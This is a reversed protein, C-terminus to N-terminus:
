NVLTWDSSSSRGTAVYVKSLATNVYIDGIALPTSTPAGSGYVAIPLKNAIRDILASDTNNHVHYPILSVGYANTVERSKLADTIMKQVQQIDSDTLM